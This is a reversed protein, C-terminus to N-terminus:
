LGVLTIPISQMLYTVFNLQIVARVDVPDPLQDRMKVWEEYNSLTWEEIENQVQSGIKTYLKLKEKLKMYTRRSDIPIEKFIFQAFVMLIICTSLLISGMVLRM